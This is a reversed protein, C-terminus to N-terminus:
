VNQRIDVNIDRSIIKNRGRPVGDYDHNNKRGIGYLWDTSVGYFEALMGLMEINPEVRGTEYSALTNRNVGTEKAVDRQSFGTNERAKRLRSAFGEKYM